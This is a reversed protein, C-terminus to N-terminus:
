RGIVKVRRLAILVVDAVDALEEADRDSWGQGCAWGGIEEISISYGALWANQFLDTLMEITGRWEIDGENWNRGQFWGELRARATADLPM